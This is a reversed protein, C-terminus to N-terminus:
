MGLDRTINSSINGKLTCLLWFHFGHLIRPLACWSKKDWLIRPQLHKLQVGCSYLSICLYFVILICDSCCVEPDRTIVRLLLEEHAALFWSGHARAGLVKAGDHIFNPICSWVWPSHGQSCIWTFQSSHSQIRHSRTAKQSGSLQITGVWSPNVHDITFAFSSSHEYPWNHKRPLTNRFYFARHLAPKYKSLGTCHAVWHQRSQCVSKWIGIIWLQTCQCCVGQAM